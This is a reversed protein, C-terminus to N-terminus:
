REEIPVQALPGDKAAMLSWGPKAGQVLKAFYTNSLYIRAVEFEGAEWEGSIEGASRPPCFDSSQCSFSAPNAFPVNEREHWEPETPTQCRNYLWVDGCINGDEDLMYAYCVKGDDEVVVKRPSSPSGFTGIFAENENASEM